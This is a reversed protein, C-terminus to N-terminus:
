QAARRYRIPGDYGLARLAAEVRRVDPSDDADITCVRIERAHTDTGHAATAVKSKYGLQGNETAAKIRAWLADVRQTDTVILWEGARATPLAADPAKAEIWYVAAIQSPVAQADHAMRAQQVMRILDLNPKQGDSM